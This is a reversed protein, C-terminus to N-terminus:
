ADPTLRKLSVRIISVRASRTEHHFDPSTSKNHAWEPISILYSSPDESDSQRRNHGPVVHKSFM